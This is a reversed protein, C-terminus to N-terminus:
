RSGRPLPFPNITKQTVPFVFKCLRHLKELNASHSKAQGLEGLEMPTATIPFFISYGLSLEQSLMTNLLVWYTRTCPKVGTPLCLM